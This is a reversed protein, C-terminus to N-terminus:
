SQSKKLTLELKKQDRVRRPGASNLLGIIPMKCQLLSSSAPATESATSARNSYGQNYQHHQHEQNASVARTSTSIQVYHKPAIAIQFQRAFLFAGVKERWMM